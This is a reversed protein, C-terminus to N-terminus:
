PKVFCSIIYAGGWFILAPILKSDWDIAWAIMPHIIGAILGITDMNIRRKISVTVKVTEAVRGPKWSEAYLM